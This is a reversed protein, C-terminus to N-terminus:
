LLTGQLPPYTLTGDGQPVAEASLRAPETKGTALIHVVEIGANILYDTVIRRHCQWWLAEACMLVATGGAALSLLETLGERFPATLAYDAYNRFGGEKWFTNPSPRGLDQRKRLGGLAKLHRYGIGADALAQPLVDANFQPNTRSRPVSRVDVLLTADVGRLLQIFDNTAHTSHGVTYIRM